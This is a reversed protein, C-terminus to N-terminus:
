SAFMRVRAREHTMCAIDWAPAFAGAEDLELQNSRDVASRVAPKLAHLVRQADRQGLWGLRQAASIQGRLTAFAYAEATLDAPVDLLAGLAGFAIPHHHHRGVRMFRDLRPDDVLDLAAKLLHTGILASADRPERVALLVHLREDLEVLDHTFAHRAFVLELRALSEELRLALADQLQAVGRPALQELGFSHAYAGTPFSSDLVHLADLWRM